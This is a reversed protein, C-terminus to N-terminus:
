ESPLFCSQCAGCDFAPAAMTLAGSATPTPNTAVTNKLAAQLELKEKQQTDRERELRKIQAVLQEHEKIKIKHDIQQKHKKLNKIVSLWQDFCSNIDPNGMIELTEDQSMSSFAQLMMETDPIIRDLAARLYAKNGLSDKLAAQARVHSKSLKLLKEQTSKKDAGQALPAALLLTLILIKKM